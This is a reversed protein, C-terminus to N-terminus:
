PPAAVQMKKKRTKKRVLCRKTAFTISKANHFPFKNTHSFDYKEKADRQRTAGKLVSCKRAWAARTRKM